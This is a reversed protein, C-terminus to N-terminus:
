RIALIEGFNNYTNKVQVNNHFFPTRYNLPFFIKVTESRITVPLIVTTIKAVRETQM